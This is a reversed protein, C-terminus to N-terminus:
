KWDFQLNRHNQLNQPLETECPPIVPVARESLWSNEWPAGARAVTAAV